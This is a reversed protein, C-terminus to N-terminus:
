GCAALAHQKSARDSAILFPWCASAEEWMKLKAGRKPPKAKCIACKAFRGGLLTFFGDWRRENPDDLVLPVKLVGGGDENFFDAGLVALFAGRLGVIWCGLRGKNTDDLVLLLTFVGGGDENFFDIELADSDQCHAKQLVTDVVLTRHMLHPLVFHSVSCFCFFYNLDRIAWYALVSRARVRDPQKGAIVVQDKEIGFIEAVRGTIKTLTWGEEKLQYRREM